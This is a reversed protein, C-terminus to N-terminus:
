HLSNGLSFALSSSYFIVVFDNFECVNAAVLCSSNFITTIFDFTVYIFLYIVSACLAKKGMFFSNMFISHLFFLHLYRWFTMECNQYNPPQWLMSCSIAQILSKSREEYACSKKKAPFVCLLGKSIGNLFPIKKRRLYNILKEPSANSGSHINGGYQNVKLTEFFCLM